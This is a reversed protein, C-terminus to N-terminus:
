KPLEKAANTEVHTELWTQIQASTPVSGASLVKGDIALAPLALPHFEWIKAIDTIKEVTDARGAAAVARQANVLLHGCRSCGTGLIQITAM